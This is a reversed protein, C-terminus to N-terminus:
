WYESLLSMEITEDAHHILTDAAIAAVATEAVIADDAALPLAATTSKLSSRRWREAHVALDPHLADEAAVTVVLEADQTVDEEATAVDTAAAVVAELAVLTKTIQETSTKFIAM